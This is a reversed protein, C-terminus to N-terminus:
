ADLRLGIYFEDLKPLDYVPLGSAREIDALVTAVDAAREAAVVFWMNLRHDRAYNHAVEPRANVIAAVRDFEEPPVEMAALTLGGGLREANFLPGFRTLVGDELLRRLRGILEDEPLGLTAAAAAFPRECIPIGNQLSNVIARDVSDLAV